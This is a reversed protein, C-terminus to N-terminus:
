FLTGNSYERVLDRYLSILPVYAVRESFCLVNLTVWFFPMFVLGVVFVFFGVVSRIM